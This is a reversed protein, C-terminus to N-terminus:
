RNETYGSMELYGRGSHSGSVEVAGEWYRVSHDMLQDDLLAQVELDLALEPVQLRWGVPYRTGDDAQWYRLPTLTVQDPLLSRVKGDAGVLSGQSFADAGGQRTRLQYYMLDRGDDLQLSFWDWGTQQRDLASSSWERDM